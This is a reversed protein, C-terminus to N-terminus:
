NKPHNPETGVFVDIQNDKILKIYDNYTINKEYGGYEINFNLIKM